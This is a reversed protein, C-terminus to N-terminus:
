ENKLKELKYNNLQHQYSNGNYGIIRKMETGEDLIISTPVSKVRFKKALEPFKDIDIYTIDYQNKIDKDKVLFSKLRRCPPCWSASFIYLSEAACTSCVTLLALTILLIKFSVM